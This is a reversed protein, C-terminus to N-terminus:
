LSSPTYLSSLCLYATSNDVLCSCPVCPAPDLCTWRCTWRCTLFDVGIDLYAKVQVQLKEKKPNHQPMM